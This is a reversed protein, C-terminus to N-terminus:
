PGTPVQAKLPRPQCLTALLPLSPSSAQLLSPSGAMRDGVTGLTARTQPHAIALYCCVGRVGGMSEVITEIHPKCAQLAPVAMSEVLAVPTVDAVAAEEPSASSRGRGFRDAGRPHLSAHVHKQLLSLLHLM